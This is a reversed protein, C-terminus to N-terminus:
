SSNSCYVQQSVHLFVTLAVLKRECCSYRSIPQRQSVRGVTVVRPQHVPDTEVRRVFWVWECRCMRPDVAGTSSPYSVKDKRGIGIVLLLIRSGQLPVTPFPTFVRVESAKCQSAIM